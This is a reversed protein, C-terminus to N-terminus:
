LQGTKLHRDSAPNPHGGLGDSVLEDANEIDAYIHVGDVRYAKNLPINKLDTQRVLNVVEIDRVDEFAKKIRDRSRDRNFSM